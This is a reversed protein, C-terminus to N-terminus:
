VLHFDSLRDLAGENQTYGPTERSNKCSGGVAFTM